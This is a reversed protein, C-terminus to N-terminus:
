TAPEAREAPPASSFCWAAPLPRDVQGLGLGTVVALSVLSFHARRSLHRREGLQRPDVALPVEAAGNPSPHPRDDPLATWRREGPPKIASALRRPSLGRFAM